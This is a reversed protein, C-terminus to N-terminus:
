TLYEKRIQSALQMDKRYVTKRKAHAMCLVSDEFLNILYAESAEHIANLAERTFRIDNTYDQAIEKVLRQMSAKPILLETTKQYKRIERLAVTGPKYRHQKRSTYKHPQKGTPLTKAASKTALKKRIPVAGGRATFKTRAM